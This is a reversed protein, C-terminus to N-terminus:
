GHGFYPGAKKLGAYKPMPVFSTRCHSTEFAHRISAKKSAVRVNFPSPNSATYFQVAPSGSLTYEKSLYWKLAMNKPVKPARFQDLPSFGKERLLRIAFVM